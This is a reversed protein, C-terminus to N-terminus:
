SIIPQVGVRVHVMLYSTMKMKVVPVNTDKKMAPIKKVPIVIKVHNVLTQQHKPMTIPQAHTSVHEKMYSSITKVLTVTLSLQRVVLLVAQTVHIVLIIAIMESITHQAIVVNTIMYTHDMQVLQVNTPM